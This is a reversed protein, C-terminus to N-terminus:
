FTALHREVQKEHLKEFSLQKNIKMNECNTKAFTVQAVIDHGPESM